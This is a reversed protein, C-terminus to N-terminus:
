SGEELSCHGLNRANIPHWREKIKSDIKVTTAFSPGLLIELTLLLLALLPLENGTM